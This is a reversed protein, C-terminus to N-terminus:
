FHWGGLDTPFLYELVNGVRDGWAAESHSAGAPESYRLDHHDRWGAAVLSERLRRADAIAVRGEGGGIDLWIRTAPRPRVKAVYRLIARRGWWVSPSMVALRSFVDAHRLGLFLASLGGLSSGGLGTDERGTRTRYRADVFPKLEETLFRGYAKSLGGGLRRDRTPTYEAIRAAGAHHMGVIVLPQVRGEAILMDAMEGLRWHQGRVFATDPDFLNQGDHMYLVPYRRSCDDDYGPPLYIVLDRSRDLFRSGFGSHRDLRPASVSVSM